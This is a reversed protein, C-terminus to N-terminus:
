VVKIHKSTIKEGLRMSLPDHPYYHARIKRKDLKREAIKLLRTAHGKGRHTRRTYFALDSHKNGLQLLAWSVLVEKDWLMWVLGDCCSSNRCMVLKERMLGEDRHNLSHCAKFEEPTLNKIKKHVLRMVSRQKIAMVILAVLM